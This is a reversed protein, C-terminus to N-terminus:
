LFFKSMTSFIYLIMFTYYVFFLLLVNFQTTFLIQKQLTKSGIWSKIVLVWVFWRHKEVNYM